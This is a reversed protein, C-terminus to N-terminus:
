LGSLVRYLFIIASTSFTQLSRATVLSPMYKPSKEALHYM